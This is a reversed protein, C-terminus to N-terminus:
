NRSYVIKTLLPDDPVLEQLMNFSQIDKLNLVQGQAHQPKSALELEGLEGSDGSIEM